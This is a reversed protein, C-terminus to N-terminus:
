KRLLLRDLEGTNACYANLRDRANDACVDSACRHREGCKGCADLLNQFLEPDTAALYGQDLGHQAVRLPMLVGPAESAATDHASGDAPVALQPMQRSAASVRPLWHKLTTELKPIRM